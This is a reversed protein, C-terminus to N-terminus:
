RSVPRRRIITNNVVILDMRTRLFCDLAQAGQVRRRLYSLRPIPHRGHLFRGTLPPILSQLAARDQKGRGIATSTSVYDGFGDIACIAADDFPSVFFASALHAPHREVFLLVASGDAHYANIGLIHM